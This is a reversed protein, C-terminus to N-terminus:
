RASSESSVRQVAAIFSPNERLAPHSAILTQSLSMVFSRAAGLCEELDVIALDDSYSASIRVRGGERGLRILAESETFEFVGSEGPKLAGLLHVLGLAADWVPVWGWHTSFDAPGVTFELDGLFCEYRLVSESATHWTYRDPLGDSEVAANLTIM